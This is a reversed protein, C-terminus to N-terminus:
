LLCFDLYGLTAFPLMYIQIYTPHLHATHRVNSKCLIHRFLFVVHASAGSKWVQLAQSKEQVRMGTCPSSAAHCSDSGQRTAGHTRHCLVLQSSVPHTLLLFVESFWLLAPSLSNPISRSRPVLWTHWLVAAVSLHGRGRCGRPYKGVPRLRINAEPVLYEAEEPRGREFYCWVLGLPSYISSCLQLGGGRGELNVTRGWLELKQQWWQLYRSGELGMSTKFWLYNKIMTKWVHSCKENLIAERDPPIDEDCRGHWFM